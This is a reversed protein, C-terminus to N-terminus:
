RFFTESDDVIPGPNFTSAPLMVPPTTTQSLLFIEPSAPCDAMGSHRIPRNAAKDLRDSIAPQQVSEGHRELGLDRPWCSVPSVFEIPFSMM